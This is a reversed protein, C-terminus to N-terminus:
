YRDSGKAWQMVVEEMVDPPLQEFGRVGRWPVLAPLEVLDELQWAVPGAWWKFQPSHAPPGVETSGTLFAVAVIAGTPIDDPIEFGEARLHEVAGQDFTTGAHIAVYTGVAPAFPRGQRNELRKGHRCMVFPWPSYSTFVFFPPPLRGRAPTM